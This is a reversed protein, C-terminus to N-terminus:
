QVTEAQWYERVSKIKDKSIEMIEVEKMHIKANKKRNFFVVEWEAIVTNGDIYFNLLKFKIDKQENVVKYVWYKRIEKHGIIPKKLVREHYIANKTFITLIKDPDQEAWAEGYIKLIKAVTKRDVM